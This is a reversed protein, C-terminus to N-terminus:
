GKQDGPAQEPRYRSFKVKVKVLSDLTQTEIPSGNEVNLFIKSGKEELDFLKSQKAMFIFVSREMSVDALFLTADWVGFRRYCRKESRRM